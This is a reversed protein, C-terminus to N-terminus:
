RDVRRAVWPQPFPAGPVYLVGVFGITAEGSAARADPWAVDTTGRGASDARPLGPGTCTSASARQFRSLDVTTRTFRVDFSIQLVCGDTEMSSLTWGTGSCTGDTACVVVATTPAGSSPTLTLEWTQPVDGRRHCAALATALAVALITKSAMGGM